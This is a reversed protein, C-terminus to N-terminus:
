NVAEAMEVNTSTPAPKLTSYLRNDTVLYQKAAQKVGELTVSDVLANYDDVPLPTYPTYHNLMYNLWFGNEKLNKDRSIKAQNKFNDITQEDIDGVIFKAFVANVENYLEDVREPDCTFSVNINYNQYPWRSVSANVSVSYVGALEERLRDRLAKELANRFASMVVQNQYSWVGDGFLSTIVTAKPEAGKEMHIQYDGRLAFNPLKVRTEKAQTTPLSALYTSLYTDMKELDIDGVFVFTFDSPNEFRQQYVTYITDLSQKELMAVDFEVNRPNGSQTKAQIAAYFQANPSNYKNELRPRYTDKLWEFRELDKVPATFRLYISQMMYILDEKNSGGSMSETYTSILPSVSFRKERSFQALQEMNLTGLGMFNLTNMLGFSTLYTEDDVLAYGGDSIAKFQISNESFTTPKLIVKVGNSLVWEHADWKDIYTKHLVKGRTPLENMLASVQDKDDLVLTPTDQVKQWISNLGLESPLQDVMNNPATLFVVANQHGAWTGMQAQLDSLTIQNIFAKSLIFDQALSTIPAGTLFHNVYSGLYAGHKLTNQSKLASEFWELYLRKETALEQDSVGHDVVRKVETLLRAFAAETQNPRVSARFFFEEATPMTQNSGVRASIFPSKTDLSLDNIRKTLIGSLVNKIVRAKYKQQTHKGSQTNNRWSSSLTIGTLEEDTFINFVPADFVDLYQVPITVPATPREIKGFYKEILTKIESSDFDGVAVVSMLDPRYWTKYFRILDEHKGSKIIEETGIPLRSAYNTGAFMVPWQQKAVREGVGKRSRWEELVVGREENIATADFTVKHAWNELIHIAKEIVQPNDAPVRLKYITNDFTTTANLHAGFRMGISEVFEIIEQEKFDQTGNFAMHEAFHAFGQQNDDEFISGTKVVLRLEAFNEPKANERIIYNLGNNLTGKVINEDVPLDASMNLLDAPSSDSKTQSNEQPTNKASECAVLLCAFCILLMSKVSVLRGKGKHKHKQNTIQKQARKGNYFSLLM